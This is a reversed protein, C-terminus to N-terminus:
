RSHIVVNRITSPKMGSSLMQEVLRQVEQRELKSVQVSGDKM